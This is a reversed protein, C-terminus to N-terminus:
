DDTAHLLNELFEQELECDLCMIASQYWSGSTLELKHPKGQMLFTDHARALYDHSYTALNAPKVIQCTGCELLVIPPMSCPAEGDVQHYWWMKQMSFQYPQHCSQVIARVHLLKSLPENFWLEHDTQGNRRDTSRCVTYLKSIRRSVQTMQLHTLSDFHQIMFDLCEM